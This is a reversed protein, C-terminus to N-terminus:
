LANAKFESEALRGFFGAGLVSILGVILLGLGWWPLPSFLMAGVGAAVMALGPLLCVTASRQYRRMRESKTPYLVGVVAQWLAVFSAIPLWCFLVVISLGIADIFHIVTDL